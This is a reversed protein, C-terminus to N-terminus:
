VQSVGRMSMQSFSPTLGYLDHYGSMKLNKSTLYHTKRM